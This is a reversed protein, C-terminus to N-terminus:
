SIIPGSSHFRKAISSNSKKWAPHREQWECSLSLAGFSNSTSILHSYICQHRWTALQIHFQWCRSVSYTCHMVSVSQTQGKLLGWQPNYGMQSDKKPKGEIWFHYATSLESHIYLNWMNLQLGTQPLFYLLAGNLHKYSKLLYLQLSKMKLDDGRRSRTSQFEPTDTRGDTRGCFTKGIEM